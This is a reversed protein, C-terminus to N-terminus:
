IIMMAAVAARTQILLLLVHVVLVCFLFLRVCVCIYLLSVVCTSIIIIIILCFLLSFLLCILCVFSFLFRYHRGCCCDDTLRQQAIHPDFVFLQVSQRHYFCFFFLLVHHHLPDPPIPLIFCFYIKDSDNRVLVRLCLVLEM